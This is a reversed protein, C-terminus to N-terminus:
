LGNYSLKSEHDFDTVTVTQPVIQELIGEAAEDSFVETEL